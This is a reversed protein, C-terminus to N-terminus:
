IRKPSYSSFASHWVLIPLVGMRFINCKAINILCDSEGLGHWNEFSFIINHNISYVAM